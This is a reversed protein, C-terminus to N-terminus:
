RRRMGIIWLSESRPFPKHIPALVQDHLIAAAGDDCHGRMSGLRPLSPTRPGSPGNEGRTASRCSVQKQSRHLSNLRRRARRRPDQIGPAPLVRLRRIRRHIATADTSAAHAAPASATWTVSTVSSVTPQTTFNHHNSHLDGQESGCSWGLRFWKSRTLRQAGRPLPKTDPRSCQVRRDSLFPFVFSFTPLGRSPSRM